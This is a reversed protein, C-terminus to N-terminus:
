KVVTCLNNMISNIYGDADNGLAETCQRCSSLHAIKDQSKLKQATQLTSLM